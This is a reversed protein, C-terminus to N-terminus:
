TTAYTTNLVFVIQLLLSVSTRYGITSILTGWKDALPTDRRCELVGSGHDGDRIHLGSYYGDNQIDHTLLSLVRM